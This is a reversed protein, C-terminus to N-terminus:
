RRDPVRTPRANDSVSGAGVKRGPTTSGDSLGYVSKRRPPCPNSRALDADQRYRMGCRGHRHASAALTQGSGHDRHDTCSITKTAARRDSTFSSRRIPSASSVRSSHTRGLPRRTHAHLRLHHLTRTYLDKAVLCHLVKKSVAKYSRRDSESWEKLKKELGTGRYLEISWLTGLLLAIGYFPELCQNGESSERVITM